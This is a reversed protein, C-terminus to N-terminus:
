GRADHSSLLRLLLCHWTTSLRACVLCARVAANAAYCRLALVFRFRAVLAKAPRPERARLNRRSVVRGTM